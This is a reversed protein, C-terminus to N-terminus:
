SRPAIWQFPSRTIESIERATLQRHYIYFFKYKTLDSTIAGGKHRGLLVQTTGQSRTPNAGNSAILVANKWMEMGRPGTTVGWVNDNTDQGQAVQLRTSGNTEGGFDWYANGDGFPLYGACLVGLTSSEVGFTVMNSQGTSTFQHGVVVTCEQTPLLLTDLGLQDFDTTATHERTKGAHGKVASSSWLTAGPTGALVGRVGRVIDNISGDAFLFGFRPCLSHGYIPRVNSPSISWAKTFIDIAM